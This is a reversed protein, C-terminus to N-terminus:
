LHIKLSRYRRGTWHFLVNLTIRTKKERKEEEEKKAYWRFIGSVFM